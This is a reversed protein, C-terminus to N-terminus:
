RERTGTDSPAVEVRLINGRYEFLKVRLGDKLSGGDRARRHFAPTAGFGDFSFREPGVRFSELPRGTWSQHTYDAIEGELIRVRGEDLARVFEKREEVYSAIQAGILVMLLALVGLYVTLRPSRPSYLHKRLERRRRVLEVVVAAGLLVLPAFAYWSAFEATRVDFLVDFLRESTDVGRGQGIM